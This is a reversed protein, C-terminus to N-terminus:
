QGVLDVADDYFHVARCKLLFQSECALSRAPGDSVLVGSAAADRLNFVDNRLHAASSFQSRHCPELRHRDAARRDRARGQVVHVLNFAEPDSDAVPYLHLAAAVHNGFDHFHDIVVRMGPSVLTELHGLMTRYALPIYDACRAFGVMAADIRITGRFELSRNQMEGRAVDHVNVPEAVSKHVLKGLAAHHLIDSVKVTESLVIQQFELAHALLRCLIHESFNLSGFLQREFAYNKTQTYPKDALARRLEKSFIESRDVRDHLSSALFKLFHVLHSRADGFAYHFKETVFVVAFQNM